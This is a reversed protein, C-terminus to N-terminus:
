EVLSRTSSEVMSSMQFTSMSSNFRNQYSFSHVVVEVLAELVLTVTEEIGQFRTSKDRHM